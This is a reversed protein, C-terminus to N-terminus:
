GGLIVREVDRVLRETEGDFSEIVHDCEKAWEMEKFFSQRRRELEDDSMQSRGLIRRRLMGWDPVTLFISVLNEKPVLERISRLGQVDVERIVIKGAALADLIPQKLTGYYNDQHVVAWELFDGAEIRRVFEDKPIFRYIEGEVEHPRKDRTTCSVPFVFEPYKARLAALVTGKGSGSPGLLLYLIGQPITSKNM